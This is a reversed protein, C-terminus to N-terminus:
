FELRGRIKKGFFGRIPFEPRGLKGEVKKKNTEYIGLKKAWGL